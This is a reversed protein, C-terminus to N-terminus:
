PKVVMLVDFEWRSGVRRIPSTVRWITRGELSGAECKRRADEAGEKTRQSVIMPTVHRGEVPSM